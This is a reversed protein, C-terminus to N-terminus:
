ILLDFADWKFIFNYKIDQYYNEQGIKLRSEHGHFISSAFNQYELWALEYHM